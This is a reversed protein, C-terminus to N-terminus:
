LAFGLCTHQFESLSSAPLRDPISKSYYGQNTTLGREEFM